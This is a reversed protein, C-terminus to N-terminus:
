ATFNVTQFVNTQSAASSGSSNTGDPFLSTLCHLGGHHPRHHHAAMSTSSHLNQQVSLHAQRAGALDGSELASGLAKLDQSLRVSKLGSGTARNTLAGFAQQATILNGSQLVKALQQFETRRQQQNTNQLHNAPNLTSSPLIASINM